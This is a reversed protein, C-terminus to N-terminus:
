ENLIKHKKIENSKDADKLTKKNEIKAKILPINRYVDEFILM